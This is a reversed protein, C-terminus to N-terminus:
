VALAPRKLDIAVPTVSAPESPMQNDCLTVAKRLTSEV